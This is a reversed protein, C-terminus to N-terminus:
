EAGYQIESAIISSVYHNLANLIDDKLDDCSSYGNVVSPDIIRVKSEIPGINDLYRTAKSAQSAPKTPTTSEPLLTPQHQHQFSHLLYLLLTLILNLLDMM